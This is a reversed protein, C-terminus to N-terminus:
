QQIVSSRANGFNERQLVKLYDNGSKYLEDYRNKNKRANRQVM